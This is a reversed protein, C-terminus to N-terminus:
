YYKFFWLKDYRSIWRHCGGMNNRIVYEATYPNINKAELEKELVKEEEMKEYSTAIAKFPLKHAVESLFPLAEEFEIKGGLEIIVRGGKIPTVYHDIPGKGGGMRKGQGKRTLPQWPPDVRWVAFMKSPDMKRNITMRIMDFHGSRLRGGCLAVVGYQKYIFQNHIPEPGRMFIINKTMKPPKVGAPYVPVKEVFPLKVKEPLEIHDFLRPPMLRKMGAIQQTFSVCPRLLWTSNHITALLM